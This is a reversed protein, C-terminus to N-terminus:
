KTYADAKFKKIRRDITKKSRGAKEMSKRMEISILAIQIAKSDEDDQDDDDSESSSDTEAAKGANSKHGGKLARYASRTQRMDEAEHRMRKELLKLKRKIAKESCGNIKLNNRMQISAMTIEIDAQSMGGDSGASPKQKLASPKRGLKDSGQGTGKCDQDRSKSDGQNVSPEFFKVHPKRIGMVRALNRMFTQVAAEFSSRVNKTSDTM